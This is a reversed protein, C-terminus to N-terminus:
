RGSQNEQHKMKNKPLFTSLLPDKFLCSTVVLKRLIHGYASWCWATIATSEHNLLAPIPSCAFHLQWNVIITSTLGSNVNCIGDVFHIYEIEYDINVRVVARYM